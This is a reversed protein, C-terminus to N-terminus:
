AISGYVVEGDVITAIVKSKLIDEEPVTMIDRDFVVMDAHLGIAISGYEQEAFAAYAADYTMGKLAQM